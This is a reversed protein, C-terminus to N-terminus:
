SECNCFYLQHWFARVFGRAVRASPLVHNSTWGNFHLVRIYLDSPFYIDKNM